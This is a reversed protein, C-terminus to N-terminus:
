TKEGTTKLWSKFNSSSMRMAKIVEAINSTNLVAPMRQLPDRIKGHYGYVEDTYLKRQVTVIGDEDRTTERVGAFVHDFLAPIQKAAAKGHVQPWYTVKGNDDEEDKALATVLIHYPLNRVWKLSGIMQRAFEGWQAYENHKKGEAETQIRIVDYKKVLEANLQDSAETLSDIALWKYGQKKFEKSAIIQCVGKFSYIGEDPNHEGDWSTFPLYDIEQDAISILGGEGSLIFGKGFAEKYYRCQTTKGFGHMAYILSKSAGTVSTDNTKLPKFM